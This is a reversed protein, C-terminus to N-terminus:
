GIKQQVVGVIERCMQNTIEKTPGEVMVRCKFQTGSYRVLVRGQDGLRTEVAKISDMIEPITNLDPKSTVDVNILVQPFVTMVNSLESLPSGASQMADMLRLSAMIGDGTTHCDRFIMHGSDEGGM